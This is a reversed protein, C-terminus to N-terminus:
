RAILAGSPPLPLSGGDNGWGAAGRPTCRKPAEGHFKKDLIMQSLKREVDAQFRLVATPFREWCECHASCLVACCPLACCPLAPCGWVRCLCGHQLPAGGASATGGLAARVKSLKILGSIHEMQLPLPVAAASRPTLAAM